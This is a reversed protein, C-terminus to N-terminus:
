SVLSARPQQIKGPKPPGPNVMIGSCPSTAARDTLGACAKAALSAALPAGHTGIGTASNDPRMQLIRFSM